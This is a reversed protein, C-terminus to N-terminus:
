EGEIFSWTFGHASKRLGRCVERIHAALSANLIGNNFYLSAEKSNKFVMNLEKCLLPKSNRNSLKLKHTESMKHGKHGKYGKNSESIKRKTEESIKHGKRKHEFLKLHENIYNNWYVHLLRKGIRKIKLKKGKYSKHHLKAHEKIEMFILEEPPRDYYIGLAVLEKKSIFCNTPRLAGDSFHTELRHHIVYMDKSKIAKDYNEVLSLDKTYQRLNSVTIM